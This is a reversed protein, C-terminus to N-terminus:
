EDLLRKLTKNSWNLYYEDHSKVCIGLQSEDSLDFQPMSFEFGTYKKDGSDDSFYEAIDDRVIMKTDYLYLDDKTRFAIYINSSKMNINSEIAAWGIIKLKSETLSISEINYTIESEILKSDDFAIPRSEFEGIKPKRNDGIILTYNSVRLSLSNSHKVVNSIRYKGEQLRSIDIRTNYGSNLYAAVNYYEAVDYREERDTRFTYDQNDSQLVIYIEDIDENADIDSSWGRLTLIDHFKENQINIEDINGITTNRKEPIEIIIRDAVNYVHLAENVILGILIFVFFSLALYLVKFKNM